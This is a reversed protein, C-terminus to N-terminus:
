LLHWHGSTSLSNKTLLKLDVMCYLHWIYVQFWWCSWLSQMTPWVLSTFLHNNNWWEQFTQLNPPLCIPLPENHACNRCPRYSHLCSKICIIINTYSWTSRWASYKLLVTRCCTRNKTRYNYGVSRPLCLQVTTQNLQHSWVSWVQCVFPVVFRGPMSFFASWSINSNSFTQDDSESAIM